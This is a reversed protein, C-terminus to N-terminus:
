MVQRESIDTWFHKTFFNNRFIEYFAYFLVQEFFYQFVEKVFNWDKFLCKLSLKKIYTKRM